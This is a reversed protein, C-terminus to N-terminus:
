KIILAQGTPLELATVKLSKLLHSIHHYQEEHGYRCYDDLLIIGGKNLLNWVYKIAGLEAFSSNLDISAFAVNTIKLEALITPVMGRIVEVNKYKKFRKKVVGYDLDQYIGRYKEFEKKTSFEESLGSFTDVLYYKRGQLGGTYQLTAMAMRGTNCGLELFDGNTELAKSACWTHVHIPWTERTNPSIKRGKGYAISFKKEKEFHPIHRAMLGDDNYRINKDVYSLIDVIKKSFATIVSMDDSFM